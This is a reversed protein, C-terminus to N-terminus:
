RIRIRSGFGAGSRSSQLYDQFFARDKFNLLGQPDAGRRVAAQHLPRFLTDLLSSGENLVPSSEEWSLEYLVIQQFRVEIDFWTSCVISELLKRQLLLSRTLFRAKENQWYLLFLLQRVNKQSYKSPLPIFDYFLFPKRRYLSIVMSWISYLFSSSEVPHPSRFNM